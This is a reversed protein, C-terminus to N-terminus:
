AAKLIKTKCYPGLLRLTLDLYKKRNESYLACKEIGTIPEMLDMLSWEAETVLHEAVLLPCHDPSATKLGAKAQEIRCEALFIQFDSDLLLYAHDPNLIIESPKVRDSWEPSIPLQLRALIATQYGVVIPRITLVFAMALLLAEAASKMDPTIMAPTFKKM